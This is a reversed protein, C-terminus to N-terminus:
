VEYSGSVIYFNTAIPNAGDYRALRVYTPAAVTIAGALGVGSSTNVGAVAADFVANIPLSVRIAGAATGANVIQFSVMFHCVGNIVSHRAAVTTVTTFSGTDATYVPVYTAPVRIEEGMLEGRDSANLRLM